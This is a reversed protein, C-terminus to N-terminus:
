KMPGGIPPAGTVPMDNVLTSSHEYIVGDSNTGFFRPNAINPDVPDGVLAYSTSTGGIGIGNCSAPANSFELGAMSFQYGSKQIVDDATLEDGLFPDTSGPAPERLQPLSRAYFGLGCSIAFSLQGSNIVRITGLASAAQAAGRARMLGPIALSCLLGILAVVFLMDILTFGAERRSRTNRKAKM